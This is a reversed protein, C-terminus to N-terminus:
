LLWCHVCAHYLRLYMSTTNAWSFTRARELGRKTLKRLLERDNSLQAIRRALDLPDGQNFLIGASGTIEPCAGLNSAIIPLGSAMAELLVMGFAENVSPLVLTDAGSYYTELEEDSVHSLLRVRESLSLEKITKAIQSYLRGTGIVALHLHTNEKLAEHLGHILTLPDKYPHLKGVFLLVFDQESYGLQKKSLQKEKPKFKNADIGNYIAESAIDYELKLADKVYNSVAVTTSAKSAVLPLFLREVTYRIKDVLSPELWPQPLGHSTFIFNTRFLVKRFIAFLGLIAFNIHVVDPRDSFLSILGRLNPLFHSTTLYSIHLQESAVIREAHQPQSMFFVHVNCGRFVLNQALNMTFALVGGKSNSLMTVKM